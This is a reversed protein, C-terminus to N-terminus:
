LGAKKAGYVAQEHTYGDGASSELQDIMRSRSFPAIELYNKAAKAAQEFWNVKVHDAAYTADKVSYGDGAESSLQRILGQRSFPAFSLYNEASRLANKQGSTLEQTPKPKPAVKTTTSPAAKTTSTSAPAATKSSATSSSSSSSTSSTPVPKTGGAVPATPDDGGGLATSVGGVVLLAGLGTLIKHRKFWSGKASAPSPAPATSGDDVWVHWGPPPPGWAPDPQWGQPPTWGAPPTPWNPPPNYRM